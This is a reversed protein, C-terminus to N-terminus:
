RSFGGIFLVNIAASFRQAVWIWGGLDLWGFGAVWIWGGLDLWGFGAVWIWGGL